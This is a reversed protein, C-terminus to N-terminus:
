SCDQKVIDIALVPKAEIDAYFYRFSGGLDMIARTESKACINKIVSQRVKEKMAGDVKAGDMLIINKYIMKGGEYDVGTLITTADLKKPLIARMKAAADAFGKELDVAAASPTGFVNHAGNIITKWFVGGVVAAALMLMGFFIKAVPWTGSVKEPEPKPVERTGANPIQSPTVFLAVIEKISGARRWDRDGDGWVLLEEWDPYQQLASKLAALRLPGVSREKDAYFWRDPM